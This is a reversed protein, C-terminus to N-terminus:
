YEDLINGSNIFKIIKEKKGIIIAPKVIRTENPILSYEKFSFFVYSMQEKTYYKM